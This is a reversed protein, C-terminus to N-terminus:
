PRSAAASTEGIGPAARTIFPSGPRLVASEIFDANAVNEAPLGYRSAYGPTSPHELSWFQGEPGASKGVTGTRYLSAGNEVQSRAAMSAADVGQEAAGYPTSISKTAIFWRSATTSSAAALSVQEDPAGLVAAAHHYAKINAAYSYTAVRPGAPSDYAGPVFLGSTTRSAVLGIVVSFGVVLAILAARTSRQEM